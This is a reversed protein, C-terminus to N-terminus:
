RVELPLPFLVSEQIGPAESVTIPGLSALAAVVRQVLSESASAGATVGISGANPLWSLEIGSEDDILHAPTGLQRALEVLRNSNSSNASGVVLVLDVEPALSRVGDQRNQSAYCIDSARPAAVEGFRERLAAVVPVTDEVALTTQTTYALPTGEPVELGAVDEPRELLVISPDEGLTGEVEDHGDHGILVVRYHQDLFRRVELHVKTVLPCTADIVRQGREAADTHVAPAVGHASFVVTAGDPVEDLENVFIAGRRELETVVHRNHVIQRRVYVPAGYRELALEVSRIAREVGACFARPQALVIQRPGAAEAWQVVVPTLQRLTRCATAMGAVGRASILEHEPSDSIVRVVAYPREWGAAGALLAASEMDVAIAGTARALAGREDGRVLHDATAVRGVQVRFGARRLAGALIGAGPVATVNAGQASCVSDAVVVTGPTLQGTLDGAFGMVAVARTDGLRHRLGAAAAAARAPGMGTRIVLAASPAGRIVMRAELRLPTLAALPPGSM